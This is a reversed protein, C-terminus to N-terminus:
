IPLIDYIENSYPFLNIFRVLQFDEGIKRCIWIGCGAQFSRILSDNMDNLRGTSKSRRRAHSIGFVIENGYIALGRVYGKDIQLLDKKLSRIKRKASECFFLEGDKSILTHPHFLEDKIIRGNTVDFIYGNKSCLWNEKEKKGFASIVLNGEFYAISNIHLTDKEENNARWYIKEEGKEPLFEVISNNGTSAIYVKEDKVLLSHGDKVYKLSWKKKVKYNKDLFFLKHRKAQLLCLFGDKYKALGTVGKPKWTWWNIKIPRIRETETDVELLFVKPYLIKEKREKIVSKKKNCLSVILRM